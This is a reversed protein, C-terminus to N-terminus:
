KKHKEKNDEIAKLYDVKFIEYLKYSHYKFDSLRISDKYIGVCRGNYKKIYKMYMKDIINESICSFQIKRIDLTFLLNLFAYLDRSFTMNCKDKFNLIRLGSVIGYDSELDASLFGIVSGESNVSVYEIGEWLSEAIKMGTRLPFKDERYSHVFFYMFREDNKVKSYQENIEVKYDKAEKLM